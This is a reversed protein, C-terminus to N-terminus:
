LGMRDVPSAKRHAEQLDSEALMVYRRTMELRTHGMLKQLALVNGGNKLFNYAFTHRLRHASSNMREIGAKDLRQRVLDSLYNPRLRDRGSNCAPPFLASHGNAIWPRCRNLYDELLARTRQGMYVTRPKAGKGKVKIGEGEFNVDAVDLRVVEGIRLGTDLILVCLVYDRYSPAKTKDFSDLFASIQERTLPRIDPPPVRPTPVRRMPDESTKVVEDLILFSFFARLVYTQTRITSGRNGRARKDAMFERIRRATIEEDRGYEKVFWDYFQRLGQKYLAITRPSLNKSENFVHFARMQERFGRANM